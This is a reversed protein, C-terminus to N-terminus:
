FHFDYGPYKEAVDQLCRGLQGNAGTILIKIKKNKSDVM